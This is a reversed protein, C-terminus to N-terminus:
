TQEDALYKDALQLLLPRVDHEFLLALWLEDMGQAVIM